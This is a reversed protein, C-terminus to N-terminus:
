FICTLIFCFIMFLLTLGVIIHQPMVVQPSLVRNTLKAVAAILYIMPLNYDPMMIYPFGKMICLTQGNGGQTLLRYFGEAVHEPTMLGGM